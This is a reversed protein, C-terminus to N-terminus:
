LQPEPDPSPTLVRSPTPPVCKPKARHRKVASRRSEKVKQQLSTIAPKEAAEATQETATAKAADSDFLGKRYSALVVDMATVTSPRCITFEPVCAKDAQYVAYTMGFRAALNRSRIGTGLSSLKAYGSRDPDTIILGQGKAFLEGGFDAVETEFEAWSKAAALQPQLRKGMERTEALPWQPLPTKKHKRLLQHEGDSAQRPKARATGPENHRGPVVRFGHSESQRRMSREIRRYDHSTSWAVGTDPHVRNVMVHLHPNATDGHGVIMAQHEALGVDRLTTDAVIRMTAEDPREDSHWSIIFHYVPRVVRVSLKATAAMIRAALDPNDTCLNRAKVFTVRGPNKEGAHGDILYRKLAAFDRGPTPVNALM